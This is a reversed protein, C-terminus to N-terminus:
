VASQMECASVTYNKNLDILSFHVKNIWVLDINLSIMIHFLRDIHELSFYIPKIDEDLKQFSHFNNFFNYCSNHNSTQAIDGSNQNYWDSLNPICM